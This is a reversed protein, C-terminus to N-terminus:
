KNLQYYQEAEKELNERVATILLSEQESSYEDITLLQCIATNDDTCKIVAFDIINMEEFIDNASTLPSSIDEDTIMGVREGDISAIIYIDETKLTIVDDEQLRTDEVILSFYKHKGPKPRSEGYKNKQVIEFVAGAHVESIFEIGFYENELDKYIFNVLDSFEMIDSCEVLDTDPQFYGVNGCHGYESHYVDIYTLHSDQPDLILLSLKESEKFPDTPTKVGNRQVYILKKSLAM